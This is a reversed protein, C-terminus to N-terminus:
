GKQAEIQLILIIEPLSLHRLSFEVSYHALINFGHWARPPHCGLQPEMDRLPLLDQPAPM